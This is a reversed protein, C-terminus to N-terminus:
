GGQIVVKREARRATFSGFAILAALWFLQLVIASLLEAGSLDGGYVRLPVNQMSAFPLFEALTRYPEPFFPLPILSGTLLEAAGTLLARWGQPSVTFFSLIYVSMCFAVTVGLALLMTLLFLLFAALSEPSGMCYPKPLLFACLLIPISRIVAEATRGGVNRAFWMAYVSVPRCLEYAIGGDTMMQFLEKDAGIIVFLAFFAEKLWIYSVVASYEMPFAVADSELLAKYALCEMLGWLFQTILQGFAASRYQLGTLFRVQFFSYYKKM